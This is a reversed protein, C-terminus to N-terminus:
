RSVFLFDLIYTGFYGHEITETITEPVEVKLLVSGGLTVTSLKGAIQAHGFLEIVAWTPELAAVSENDM